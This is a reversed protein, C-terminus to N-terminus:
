EPRDTRHEPAPPAEWGTTPRGSGVTAGCGGDIDAFGVSAGEEAFLKVIAEGIGAAGGTVAAVRGDLRGM